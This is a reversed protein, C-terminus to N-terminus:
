STLAQLNTDSLAESYLAIRKVHGNLQTINDHLSGINLKNMVPVDFGTDTSPTVGGASVAANNTDFRAAFKGYSSSGSLTVNTQINSSGNFQSFMRWNGSPRDLFLRNNDTNDSMTVVTGTGGSVEGVLSVPGGTYGIDATVASASDAARTVASGSTSIASSAFSGLEYQIKSCIVGSYGDGAYGDSGDSKIIQVQIHSASTGATGTGVCRYWGNGVSEITATGATTTVSGSGSLTFVAGIEGTYPAATQFAVLRVRYGNVAKFYGSFTYSSSSSVSISGSRVYHATNNTNAIVLDATLTGDPGIASDSQIVVDGSSGWSAMADSYPNLNTAQGEVLLGLSEGMAASASDTPSYEFRPQGAYSVSKLTPAYSRAIQTTTSQYDTAGTTTLSAFAIDLSSTGDGTHTVSGYTGTPAATSSGLYIYVYGALAGTAKITCKYYGNGSASQTASVSSFVSSSGSGTAPSGGALDFTAATWNNNANFLTLTLYRTGSNQKAYVTFALDGSANAAQFIRHVAGVSSDEVVTFGDTGGAPDAQGGTPTGNIGNPFWSTSFNSSQLLLNESSLHKENSWYHVASPAAYTPPTDSRSFTIRSDLRGANSFDANFVPRTSPYTSSFNAM